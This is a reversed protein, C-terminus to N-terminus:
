IRIPDRGKVSWRPKGGRTSEVFNEHGTTELGLSSYTDPAGTSGSTTFPTAMTAIKIVM